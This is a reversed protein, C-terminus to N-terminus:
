GQAPTWGGIGSFNNGCGKSAIVFDIFAQSARSLYREKKWALGFELYIPESLPRTVLGKSQAVIKDILFSIGMGKAVLAKHTEVQSSSLLVKPTFGKAECAQVVALRNYADETFLIFPDERLQALEISKQRALPHKSPLCVSFQERTILLTSLVSPTQHLNVIALDLQGRELSQRLIKSGDEIITIQLNPYQATFAALINPFLFSAILPPVGIKLTGKQLDRYQQAETVADQLQLLIGSVKEWFVVGETTLTLQKQSRDFLQVAIQEELRQIAITITSQSVHLHEAARTINGLKGVMQFYELQRIDM